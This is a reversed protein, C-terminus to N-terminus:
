DSSSDSCKPERRHNEHPALQQKKSVLTFLPLFHYKIKVVKADETIAKYAEKFFAQKKVICTQKALDPRKSLIYKHLFDEFCIALMQSRNTKSEQEDCLWDLLDAYLNSFSTSFQTTKEDSGNAM